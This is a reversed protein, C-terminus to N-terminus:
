HIFLFLAWKTHWERTQSVDPHKYFFTEKSVGASYLADLESIGKWILTYIIIIVIIIFTLLMRM